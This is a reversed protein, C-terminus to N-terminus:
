SAAAADDLTADKGISKDVTAILPEVIARFRDGDIMKVAALENATACIAAWLAPDSLLQDLKRDASREIEQGEFPSRRRGYRDIFIGELYRDAHRMDDAWDRHHRGRERASPVIKIQAAAGALTILLKGERTASAGRLDAQFEGDAVDTGLRVM